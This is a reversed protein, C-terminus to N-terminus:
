ALALVPSPRCLLRAELGFLRDDWAAGADSRACARAAGGATPVTRSPLTEVVTLRTRGDEETLTFSVTSALAEDDEPWWTFGLRRGEDAELVRGRRVTGNVDLVQAAGGPRPDLRVEEGLWSGLETPDTLLTWLDDATTDLVVERTVTHEM